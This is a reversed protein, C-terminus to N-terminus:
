LKKFNPLAGKPFNFKPFHDSVEELVTTVTTKVQPEITNGIYDCKGEATHFFKCNKIFNCKM